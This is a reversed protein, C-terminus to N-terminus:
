PLMRDGARKTTLNNAMCDHFNTAQIYYQIFVTIKASTKLDISNIHLIFEEHRFMM